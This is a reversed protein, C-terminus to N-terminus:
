PRIALCRVSKTDADKITIKQKENGGGITKLIEDVASDIETFSSWRNIDLATSNLLKRFTVKVAKKPM